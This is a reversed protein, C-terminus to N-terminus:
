AQKQAFPPPFTPRASGTDDDVSFFVVVVRLESPNSLASLTSFDGRGDKKSFDGRRGKKSKYIEWVIL